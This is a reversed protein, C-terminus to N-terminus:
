GRWTARMNSPNGTSRMEIVCQHRALQLSRGSRDDCDSCNSRQMARPRTDSDFACSRVASSCLATSASKLAM